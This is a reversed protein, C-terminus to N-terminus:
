KAETNRRRLLFVAGLVLAVGILTLATQNAGNTQPLKGQANLQAEMEKADAKIKDIDLYQAVEAQEEKSLNDYKNLFDKYADLTDKDVTSPNYPKLEKGQDIVEQVSPKGPNAPDKPDTQNGSDGPNTPHVPKEPTPKTPKEPDVPKEPEPTPKEPKEPKEPKGPDVPKEPDPDPDVPKEPKEPKGPDVPKEPDPDPNPTWGGGGGGGGTSTPQVKASCTDTVTFSGILSNGEYVNYTGQKIAKEPLIVTGVMSTTLVEIDDAGKVINGKADKITIKANANPTGLITLVTLTFALCAPAASVEAECKVSYKVEIHGIFLDGEYVSYDGSPIVKTEITIQGLENTTKDTAIIAGTIDKITINSVNPRPNGNEDKVTLTFLPCSPAPQVTAECDTTVTFGDIKEGEDDYVVYRGPELKPITVKGESNTLKEVEITKNTDVNELSVKVGERPKGDVDNVTLTFEPCTPVQQVETECGEKYSIKVEKLFQKGEYLYYEGASPIPEIKIKGNDDTKATIEKGDKDKLTVTVHPRPKGNEDKLTITFLPCSNTPQLIAGCEEDNSDKGYKVTVKGQGVPKGNSDVVTYEGAQIKNPIVVKGDENTTESFKEFGNSDILTIAQKSIPDGDIDKVTITFIQCASSLDVDEINDIIYPKGDVKMDFEKNMTINISSIEVYGEPTIERLTYKGYRVQKFTIIGGDETIGEDLKITNDKNWLEFKVDDFEKREGTLPNVSFKNLQLTGKTASANTDSSSYEFKASEEDKNSTGEESAGDYNISADNSVTEGKNGDGMFFTSYKIIYGKRDLKGLDLSFSGDDNLKIESPKISVEESTTVLRGDAGLKIEQKTFTDMLLKQNSSPKDKLTINGLKSNSANVTVTWNIIDQEPKTEASKAILENAKETIQATASYEYSGDETTTLTAINTYERKNKSNQGYVDDSDKSKYEILYAEYNETEDDLDNFKITFGRVKGDDTSITDVIDWKKSSLSGDKEGEETTLKLKSITIQDKLTQGEPVPIYHGEGLKDTVTANNIDKNNINIGISWSFEQASNDVSVKKYGNNHTPSQQDPKYEADRSEEYVNDKDDKWTANAKNHYAIAVGGNAEVEYKTKYQITVPKHIEKLFKMEFGENGKSNTIIYDKADVGTVKYFEESNEKDWPTLTHKLTKGDKNITTFEDTIKFDKLPKEPNITLTWTITKNVYDVTGLSGGSKTFIAPELEVWAEGKEETDERTVTNTIVGQNKDTVFSDELVTHYVIKFASTVKGDTINSEKNFDLTFGYEDKTIFAYDDGEKLPTKEKENKGDASLTVKYVEFTKYDIKHKGTKNSSTTMSDTLRAKSPDIKQGLWNYKITWTSEYKDGSRSKELSPGYKVTASGNVSTDKSGKSKLTATNVYHMDSKTPEATVQTEYTVKYAYYGDDLKIPFKDAVSSVPTGPKNPNFGNLGVKYREVTINGVLEHGEGIVDELTADSLHKGATNVWITWPITVTGNADRSITGASKTLVDGSGTPDFTFKIEVNESGGTPIIMEQELDEENAFNGFKAEFKFSMKGDIDKELDSDLTVTVTKTSPDYKSSYAVWGDTDELTRTQNFSGRTYEEIMNQPLQFTFTSGKGYNGGPTVDFTYNLYVKDGKKPNPGSYGEIDTSNQILAGNPNYLQLGGFSMKIDEQMSSPDFVESEEEQIEESSEPLIEEEDVIIESPNEEGKGSPRLDSNEKATEKSNPLNTGELQGLSSNDKPVENDKLIEAGDDDGTVSETEADQKADANGDDNSNSDESDDGNAVRGLEDISGEDIAYVSIPSLVTQFVLLMLIIAINLKKFKQM